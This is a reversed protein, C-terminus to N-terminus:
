INGIIAINEFGAQSKEAFMGVMGYTLTNDAAQVVAEGNIYLSLKDDEARAIM